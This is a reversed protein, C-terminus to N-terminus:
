KDGNGEDEEKKSGDDKDKETSDLIEEVAAAAGLGGALAGAGGGMIAGSAAGALDSKVVTKFSKWLKGEQRSKEALISSKDETDNDILIERYWAIYNENWYKASHGMVDVASQWAIRSEIDTLNNPINNKLEQSLDFLELYRNNSETLYENILAELKDLEEMLFTDTLNSTNDSHKAINNLHRAYYDNIPDNYYQKSIEISVEKEPLDNNDYFTQIGREVLANIRTLNSGNKEVFSSNQLSFLIENMAKNHLEGVNTSTLDDQQISTSETDCGILLLMFFFFALKFSNQKFNKM